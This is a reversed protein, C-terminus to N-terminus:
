VGIESNEDAFDRCQKQETVRGFWGHHYLCIPYHLVAGGGRYEVQKDRNMCRDCLCPKM